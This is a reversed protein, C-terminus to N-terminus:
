GAYIWSPFVLNNLERAYVFESRYFYPDLGFLGAKQQEVLLKAGLEEREGTSSM